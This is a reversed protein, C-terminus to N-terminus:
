EPKPLRSYLFDALHKKHEQSMRLTMTCFWSLLEPTDPQGMMKRYQDEQWQAGKLFGQKCESWTDGKWRWPAAPDYEGCAYENAADKLLEQEEEMFTNLKSLYSFPLAKVGERNNVCCIVVCSM